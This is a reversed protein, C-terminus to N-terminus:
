AASWQELPVDRRWKRWWSFRTLEITWRDIAIVLSRLRRTALASQLPLL